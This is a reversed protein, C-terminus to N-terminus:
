SRRNVEHRHDPCSHGAISMDREKMPSVNGLSVNVFSSSLPAVTGYAALCTLFHGQAGSGRRPRGHCPFAVRRKVIDESPAVLVCGSWRERPPHSEVLGTGTSEVRDGVIGLSAQIFM